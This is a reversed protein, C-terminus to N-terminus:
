QNNEADDFDLVQVFDGRMSGDAWQYEVPVGEVLFQHVLHNNALLSPLGPRTLKRFAEDLADAPVSPNLHALAQQLRGQLVVQAYDDREAAGEGPAIDPGHVITYGLGELWALAAQEVVSEAFRNQNM